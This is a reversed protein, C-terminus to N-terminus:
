KCFDPWLRCLQARDTEDVGLMTLQYYMLARDDPEHELGMAHGLEHAAVHQVVRAVGNVGMDSVIEPRWISPELYIAEGDWYGATDVGVARGCRVDVMQTRSERIGWLEQGQQVADSLYAPICSDLTVSLGQAPDVTLGGCASLLLLAAFRV